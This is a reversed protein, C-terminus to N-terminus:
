VLVHPFVVQRADIDWLSMEERRDKFQNQSITKYSYRMASPRTQGVRMRRM